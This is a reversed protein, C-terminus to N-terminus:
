PRSKGAKKRGRVISGSGASFFSQGGTGKERYASKKAAEGDNPALEMARAFSAEAQQLLGKRYQLFGLLKHLNAADPYRQLAVKCEAMSEQERGMSMLQHALIWHGYADARIGLAIRLEALAKEHKGAANYIQALSRRAQYNKETVDLAHRFLSEGDWWYSTQRQSVAALLVLLACASIVVLIKARRSIAYLRVLDGVAWAVLVYLGLFPLYAYRDAMSQIGVQFIGIVPLLAVLYWLWGFLLYPVRRAYRIAVASILCLLLACLGSKWLPIEARLPYLVALDVPWLLKGCYAIYSTVVNALRKCSASSRCLRWRAATSRRM